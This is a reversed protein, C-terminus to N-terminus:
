TIKMKWKMIKQPLLKSPVIPLQLLLFIKHQGPHQFIFSFDIKESIVYKKLFYSKGMAHVQQLQWPLWNVHTMWSFHNIKKIRVKKM